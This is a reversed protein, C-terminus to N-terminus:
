GPVGRTPVRPAPVLWRRLLRTALPIFVFVMVPTLLATSALVRLVVPLGELYGGVFTTFLLSVPFFVLWITIAQKWRPPASTGFWGELGSARAVRAEHVLDAGEALWQQREASGAWATLSADDIFRFVIQYDDGGPPPSLVGSGLHGAYTQALSEGRRIWALFDDYRGAAVRRTILLTVPAAPPLASAM